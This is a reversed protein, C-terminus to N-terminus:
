RYNAGRRNPFASIPNKAVKRILRWPRLAYLSIASAQPYSQLDYISPQILWKGLRLWTLWTQDAIAVYDRWHVFRSPAIGTLLETQMRKILNEALTQVSADISIQESWDSPLRYSILRRAMELGLEVTRELGQSRAIGKLRQWDEQSGQSLTRAFSAVWEWAAWRHKLGHVSLFIVEDPWAWVRTMVDVVPYTLSRDWAGNLGPDILIPQARIKWQLDISLWFQDKVWPYESDFHVLLKRGNESLPREPRFGCDTLVAYAEPLQEPRIFIDLDGFNRLGLDQYLRLSQVPGKWCVSEVKAETLASLVKRLCAMAQLGRASAQRAGERWHAQEDRSMKPPLLALVKRAVLPLM